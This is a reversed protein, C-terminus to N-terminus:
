LFGVRITVFSSVTEAFYPHKQTIIVHLQTSIADKTGSLNDYAYKNEYLYETRGENKVDKRAGARRAVERRGGSCHRRGCTPRNTMANEARTQANTGDEQRGPSAEGIQGM